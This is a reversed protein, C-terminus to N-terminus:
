DVVYGSDMPSIQMQIHKRTPTYELFAHIRSEIPDCLIVFHAIGASSRDAHEMHRANQRRALLLFDPSVGYTSYLLACHLTICNDAKFPGAFFSRATPLYIQHAEGPDRASTPSPFPDIRSKGGGYRSRRKVSMPHILLACERCQPVPIGRLTLKGSTAM